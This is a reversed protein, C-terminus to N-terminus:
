IIAAELGVDWASANTPLAFERTSQLARDGSGFEVESAPKKAALDAEIVPCRM